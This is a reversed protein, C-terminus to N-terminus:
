PINKIYRESGNITLDIYVKNGISHPRVDMGESKEDFYSYDKLMFHNSELEYWELCENILINNSNDTITHNYTGDRNIKLVDKYSKGKYLYTGIFSDKDVPVSNVEFCSDLLIILLVIIYRNM